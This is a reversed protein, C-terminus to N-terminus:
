RMGPDGLCNGGSRTTQNKATFIWNTSSTQDRQDSHHEVKINWGSHVFIERVKQEIRKTTKPKLISTPQGTLYRSRLKDNIQNVIKCTEEYEEKDNLKAAAEPSVGAPYNKFNM